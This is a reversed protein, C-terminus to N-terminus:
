AGPTFDVRGLKLGLATGARGDAISVGDRITVYVLRGRNDRYWLPRRALVAARWYEVDAAHTDGFPVFVTLALDVATVEGFETIAFPRGVLELNVSEVSVTEERGDAHLFNRDTTDPTVPDFVWVGMLSPAIITLTAGIAESM